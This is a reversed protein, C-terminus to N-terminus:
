SSNFIIKLFGEPLAAAMGQSWNGGGERDPLCKPNKLELMDRCLKFTAKNHMHHQESTSLESYWM